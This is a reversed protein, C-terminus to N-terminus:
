GFRFKFNNQKFDFIVKKKRGIYELIPQLHPIVERDIM